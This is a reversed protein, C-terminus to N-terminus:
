SATITQNGAGNPKRKLILASVLAFLLGIPFIEMYTLLIVFLPNKYMDGYMKMEQTKSAIEAASAGEKTLNRLVMESYKDMFDPIFCYYYVMWTVVYITSSILAIWLGMKFAQGFTIVGESSKDRYNKIGVFIMSFALIMSAYGVIMSPEFDPSNYYINISIVMISAVIAGSILGYTLITKKM